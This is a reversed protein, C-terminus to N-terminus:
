SFDFRRFKDASGNFTIWIGTVLDLQHHSNMACHLGCYWMQSVDWCVLLNSRVLWVAAESLGIAGDEQIGITLSVRRPVIGPASPSM